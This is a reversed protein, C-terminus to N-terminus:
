LYTLNVTLTANATGSILATGTRVFRSKFSYHEGEDRRNWRMKTTNDPVAVVNDWSQLEIAIGQAGGSVAILKPNTSDAVGDFTMFVNKISSHCATAIWKREVWASKDGVNPFDAATVKGLDFSLTEDAFGCTGSLVKGTVKFDATDADANIVASLCLVPVILYKLM